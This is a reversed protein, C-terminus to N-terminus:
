EYDGFGLDIKFVLWAGSIWVPHVLIRQRIMEEDKPRISISVVPWLYCTFLTWNNFMFSFAISYSLM